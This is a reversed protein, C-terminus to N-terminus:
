CGKAHRLFSYRWNTACLKSIAHNPTRRRVFNLAEFILKLGSSWDIVSDTYGTIIFNRSIEAPLIDTCKYPYVASVAM